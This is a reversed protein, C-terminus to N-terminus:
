ARSTRFIAGTPRITRVMRLATLAKEKLSSNPDAMRIRFEEARAKSRQQTSLSGAHERFVTLSEDLVCPPELAVLRLWLDIDMAYRLKEDFMGASLFLERAVFTAPHAIFFGRSRYSTASFPSQNLPPILAGNRLTSTRAVLWRASSTSLAAAAKSLSQSSSFYDDSHLHIIMRKSAVLAGANMARSIGGRIGTLVQSARGYKSILDLTGDTSGGDVFIHEYDPYDQAAVSDLTDQLTSASNWTCTIISFDVRM